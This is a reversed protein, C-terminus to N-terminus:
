CVTFIITVETFGAPCSREHGNEQLAIPNRKCDQRTATFCEESRTDAADTLYTEKNAYYWDLLTVDEFEFLLDDYITFDIVFSLLNEWYFTNIQANYAEIYNVVDTRLGLEYVFNNEHVFVYMIATTATSNSSAFPLIYLQQDNGGEQHL